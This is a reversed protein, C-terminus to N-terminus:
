IFSKPTLLALWTAVESGDIWLGVHIIIFISIKIHLSSIFKEDKCQRLPYIGVVPGSLSYPVSSGNHYDKHISGSKLNIKEPAYKFNNAGLTGAYLLLLYQGQGQGQTLPPIFDTTM